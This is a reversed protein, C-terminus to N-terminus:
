LMHWYSQRFNKKLSDEGELSLKLFRSGLRSRNFFWDKDTRKAITNMQFSQPHWILEKPSKIIIAHTKIQDKDHLQIKM